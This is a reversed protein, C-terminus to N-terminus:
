AGTTGYIARPDTWGFSYRATAKYKANETDFDNDMGFDDSRREWHKLGDTPLNTQLFWATTSTLYHAVMAGGPIVDMAVLANIDRNATAPRDSNGLIRKAVYVLAPPIILKKPKLAMKLGRDNTASHMQITIDELSAESLAAPTSLANSWTGGAVNVHATSCLRIGDGGVFGATFARNYVNAGLTEKTVRMSFALAQARKEVVNYQDDEIMERTVIFGLGYTVHTYRTTFGQRMTDYTISGGESKVSALGFGSLGVDEEYNKDSNYTRFLETYEVPFEAYSAGYWSNVGPWLAKAFDGTVIAM